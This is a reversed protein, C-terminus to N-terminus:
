RRRSEWQLTRALVLRVLADAETRETGLRLHAAGAYLPRRRRYLAAVGDWGLHDIVMARGPLGRLRARLTPWPADLWVVPGRERLLAMTDPREVTGAGTAVVLPEDERLNLLARRERDRFEQPGGREFIAPLDRGAEHVVQDDLDVARRGTAAALRQAATTKGAALYGIFTVWM